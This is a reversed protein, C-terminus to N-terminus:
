LTWTIHLIAPEHSHRYELTGGFSRALAEGVRMALRADNTRVLVGAHLPDISEIRRSPHEKALLKAWVSLREIVEKRRRWFAAGSLLVTGVPFEDHVRGCTACREAHAGPTGGGWGYRGETPPLGCEPCREAGAEAPREALASM